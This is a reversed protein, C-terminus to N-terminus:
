GSTRRPVGLRNGGGGSSQNRNVQQNPGFTNHSKKQSVDGGLINSLGAAPNTLNNKLKQFTSSERGASTEANSGSSAPSGTAARHAIMRAATAAALNTDVIPAGGAAAPQQKKAAIKAPKKAPKAAAAPVDSKAAAKKVAPKTEAEGSPQAATTDSDPQKKSKAM